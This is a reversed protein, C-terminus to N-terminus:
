RKYRKRLAMRKWPKQTREGKERGKLISSIPQLPFLFIRISNRMHHMFFKSYLILCRHIRNISCNTEQTRLFSLINEIKCFLLRKLLMHQLLLLELGRVKEINERIAYKCARQCIETIDAGSFGQTYRALAALDIDKSIPSKRLCAKFIQLRSPEDPLPIYILQDLRGPRLLAPDIIDPRNTAGIVFLSKDGAGGAEGVSNGRQCLSPTKSNIWPM